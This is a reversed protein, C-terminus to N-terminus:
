LGSPAPISITPEVAASTPSAAPPAPLIVTETQGLADKLLKQIGELKSYLVDREASKSKLGAQLADREKAVEQHNIQALQLRDHAAALEARATDRSLEAAKLDAELKAIRLEPKPKDSTLQGPSPTPTKSCGWTVLVAAVVIAIITRTNKV